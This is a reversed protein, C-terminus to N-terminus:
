GPELRTGLITAGHGIQGAAQGDRATVLEGVDDDLARLDEGDERALPEFGLDGDAVAVDGAEALVRPLLDHVRAAFVDDGAEHVRMHVQLRRLEHGPLERAENERHPRRGHDGVRVLDRVHEPRVADM